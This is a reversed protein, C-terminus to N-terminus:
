RAEYLGQLKGRVPDDIPEAADAPAPDTSPDGVEASASQNAEPLDHRARFRRLAILTAEDVEGNATCGYGLNELRAQVGTVHDIPDLHGIALDKDIHPEPDDDDLWVRLHGSQEQAPIDCEILGSAATKGVRKKGGVTLEFRKGQYPEERPNLLVIRFKVKPRKLVFSNLRETAAPAWKQKLEIEVVDGPALINPYPRKAKLDSNAPHVHLDKAELGYRWGISSLCEGQRVPHTPM